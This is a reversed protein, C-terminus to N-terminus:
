KNQYGSINCLTIVSYPSPLIAMFRGDIPPLDLPSEKISWGKVLPLPANIQLVWQYFSNNDFWNEHKKTRTIQSINGLPQFLDYQWFAPDIIFDLGANEQAKIITETDKRIQQQIEEISGNGRKEINKVIYIEQSQGFAGTLYTGFFM